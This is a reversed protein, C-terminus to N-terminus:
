RQLDAEQAQEAEELGKLEELDQVQHEGREPRLSRAVADQRMPTASDCRQHFYRTSARRTTRQRPQDCRMKDYRVSNTPRMVHRAPYPM